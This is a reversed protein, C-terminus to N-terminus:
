YPASTLPLVKLLVDLMKNASNSFLDTLKLPVIMGVGDEQFEFVITEYIRSGNKSAERKMSLSFILQVKGCSMRAATCVVWDMHEGLIDMKYMWPM